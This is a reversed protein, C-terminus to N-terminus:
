KERRYPKKELYLKVRARIAAALDYDGRINALPVADQAVKAADNFNGAEALAAALTDLYLADREGIAQLAYQALQVAQTGNRLEPQPATALLWAFNRLGAATVGKGSAGLRYHVLATAYDGRRELAAALDFQWQANDPDAWVAQRFHELAEAPRGCQELAHAMESHLWATTTVQELVRRYQGIAEDCRQAKLLTRAYQLRLAPARPSQQVAQALLASEDAWLANRARTGVILVALLLLMVLKVTAPTFWAVEARQVLRSVLGCVVVLMGIAPLYLWQAALAGTWGAYVWVPVMGVVVWWQGLWLVPAARRARWLLVAAVGLIGLGLVCDGLRWLLSGGTLGQRIQLGGPLLLSVFSVSVARLTALLRDGVTLVPVDVPEGWGRLVLFRSVAVLAALGGWGIVWRWRRRDAKPECVLLYLAALVPLVLASVASLLSLAAAVTAAILLMEQRVDHWRSSVALLWLAGVTGVTALLPGRNALHAVCHSTVPHVAFLAAVALALGRQRAVRAVLAYVWVVGLAHLWVNFQHYWFASEGWLWYDLAHSLMTVPRYVAAGDAFRASPQTFAAGVNGQEVLAVAPRLVEFDDLVFGGALSNYYAVLVLLVLVVPALLWRTEAGTFSWPESHTAM